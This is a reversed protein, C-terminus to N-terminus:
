WDDWEDKSKKSAATTAGGSGAGKGMASTGISSGQPKRQDAASAFDDWFSKKSEDLPVKRSTTSSHGDSGEVFKNFGESASRASMQATQALRSGWGKAQAAFDSEGVQLFLLKNSHSYRALVM